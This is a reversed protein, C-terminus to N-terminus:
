APLGEERRRQATLTIEHAPLGLECERGGRGMPGTTVTGTNVTQLAAFLNIAPGFCRRARTVLGANKPGFLVPV